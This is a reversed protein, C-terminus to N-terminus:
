HSSNYHSRLEITICYFKSTMVITTMVISTMVISTMAISTMVFPNMLIFNMVISYIRYESQM